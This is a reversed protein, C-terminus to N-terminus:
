AHFYVEFPSGDEQVGWARLASGEVDSRTADEDAVDSLAIWYRAGCPCRGGEELDAPRVTHRRGCHPCRFCPM